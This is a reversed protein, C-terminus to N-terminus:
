QKAERKRKTFIIMYDSKITHLLFTDVHQLSMQRRLHINDHCILCLVRSIIREVNKLVSVNGIFDVKLCWASKWRILGYRASLEIDRNHNAFYSVGQCIHKKIDHKFHESKSYSLTDMKFVDVRDFRRWIIIKNVQRCFHIIATNVCRIFKNTMIEFIDVGRYLVQKICFCVSNNKQFLLACVDANVVKWNRHKCHISTVHKILGHISFARVFNV